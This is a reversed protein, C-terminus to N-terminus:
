GGLLWNDLGDGGIFRDASAGNRSHHGGSGRRGGFRSRGREIGVAAGGAAAHRLRVLLDDDTHHDPHATGDHQTNQGHHDPADLFLAILLVLILVVVQHAAGSDARARTFLGGARSLAAGWELACQVLVVVRAGDVCGRVELLLLWTATSTREREMMRAFRRTATRRREFHLFGEHVIMM